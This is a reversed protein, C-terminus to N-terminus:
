YIASLLIGEYIGFIVAFIVAAIIVWKVGNKYKENEEKKRNQEARFDRALIQEKEQLIADRYRPNYPSIIMNGPQSVLMPASYKVMLEENEEVTITNEAFGIYTDYTHSKYMKIVHQGPNLEYRQEGKTLMGANKGDIDFYVNGGFIEIEKQTRPLFVICAM